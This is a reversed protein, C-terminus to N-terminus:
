GRWDLWRTSAIWAEPNEEERIVRYRQGNAALSGTILEADDPDDDGVRDRNTLDRDLEVDDAWDDLDDDPDDAPPLAPPDSM